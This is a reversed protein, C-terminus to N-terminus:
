RGMPSTRLFWPSQAVRKRQELSLKTAVEVFATHMQTQMQTTQTRLEALAAAFRAADFPEAQLADTVKGRVAMMSDRQARLAARQGEMIKEVEPGADRLGARQLFGRPGLEMGHTRDM